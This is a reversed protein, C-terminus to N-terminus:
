LLVRVKHFELEMNSQGSCVWVDGFLIDIITTSGENSQITIAHPGGAETAPLKAIWKGNGDVTTQTVVAGDISIDVTEGSTGFGWVNAQVPAMQLVMGDNYYNSLRLEAGLIFCFLM